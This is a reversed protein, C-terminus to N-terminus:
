QALAEKAERPGEEAQERRQCINPLVQKSDKLAQTQFQIVLHTGHQPDIFIYFLNRQWIRYPNQTWSDANQLWLRTMTDFRLPLFVIEKAM